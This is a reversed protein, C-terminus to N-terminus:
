SFDFSLDHFFYRAASLVAQSSLKTLNHLVPEPDQKVNIM